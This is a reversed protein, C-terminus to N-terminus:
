GCTIRGLLLDAVADGCAPSAGHTLVRAAAPPDEGGPWGEDVHVADPRATLLTRLAGAQTARRHADRSVVILPRGAAAVLAHAV